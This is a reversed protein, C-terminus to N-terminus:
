IDGTRNDLLQFSVNCGRDGLVPSRAKDGALRAEVGGVSDTV